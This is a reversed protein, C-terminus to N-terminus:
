LNRGKISDTLEKQNVGLVEFVKRWWEKIEDMYEEITPMSSRTVLISSM